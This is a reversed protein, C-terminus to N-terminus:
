EGRFADDVVQRAAKIEWGDRLLLALMSKKEKDVPKDAPKDGPPADKALADKGPKKDGPQPAVFGPKKTPDQKPDYSPHSSDHEPKYDPHQPDYAISGPDSVSGTDSTAGVKSLLGLTGPVLVEDANPVDELLDYGTAERKENTTLWTASLVSTWKAARVPELAEVEDLNLRLELDDGFMPVLWHNWEEILMKALPIVADRYLAVNAEAYNDFTSDGGINLLLPPVKFALCIERATSQQGAIWDMDKPSFGMAEWKLGGEGVMVRGANKPGSVKATIEDKLRQFQQESLSGETSIMGSPSGSNAVLNYNWEAGANNQDLAYTAAQIPSMGYLEDTPNFAKTHLIASSGDIEDVAWKKIVGAHEYRYEAIGLDGPVIKMRDPRQLHLELPPKGPGIKSAAEGLGPGVGAMYANGAIQFFGAWNRRFAAGSVGPSPRRLLVLLPHKPDDVETGDHKYLCIPINAVGDAVKNIAQYATVNKKYAERAFQDYRAETHAPMGKKSRQAIPFTPDSKMSHVFRARKERLLARRHKDASM